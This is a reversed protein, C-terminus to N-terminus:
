VGDGPEVFADDPLLAIGERRISGALDFYTTVALSKAAARITIDSADDAARASSSARERGSADSLVPKRNVSDVPSSRNALAQWPQWMRSPCPAVPAPM